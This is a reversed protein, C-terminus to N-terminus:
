NKGSFGGSDEPEDRKERQERKERQKPEGGGRRLFFEGTWPGHDRTIGGMTNRNEAVVLRYIDLGLITNPDDKRYGQFALVGADANFRGRVHETGTLGIKNKYDPRSAARLTWDISGEVEGSPAVELRLNAEYTFGDSKWFGHWPGALATRESESLDQAAAVGTAAALALVVGLAAVFKRVIM